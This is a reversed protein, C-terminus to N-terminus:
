AEKVVESAYKDERLAIMFDLCAKRLQQLDVKM